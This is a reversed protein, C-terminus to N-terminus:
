PMRVEAQITQTPSHEFQLSLEIVDGPNLDRRIGILMIHYNRPKLEVKGHAPIEVGDVQRMVIEDGEMQSLHIEVADSVESDAAILRVAQSSRNEIVMFVASNAGSTHAMGGEGMESGEPQTNTSQAPIMATARVCPDTIQIDADSGSSCATVLLGSLFIISFIRYYM